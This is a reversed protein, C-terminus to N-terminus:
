MSTSVKKLSFPFLQVHEVELYNMRLWICPDKIYKAYAALMQAMKNCQRPISHFFIKLFLPLLIKSLELILGVMDKNIKQNM